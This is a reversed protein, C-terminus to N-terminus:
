CAKDHRRALRVAGYVIAGWFAINFAIMVLLALMEWPNIGLGFVSVCFFSVLLLLGAYLAMKRWAHRRQCCASTDEGYEGEPPTEQGYITGGHDVPATKTAAELLRVAEDQTIRGDSLMSVIKRIEESM